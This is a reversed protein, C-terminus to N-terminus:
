FSNPDHVLWIFAEIKFPKHLLLFGLPLTMVSCIHSFTDSLLHSHFTPLMQFVSCPPSSTCCHFSSFFMISLCFHPLQSFTFSFHTFIFSSHLAPHFKSRCSGFAFACSDILVRATLSLFANEAQQKVKCWRKHKKLLVFAFTLWPPFPVPSPSIQLFSLQSWRTQYCIARLHRTSPLFTTCLTLFSLCPAAASLRFCFFLLSFLLPPSSNITNKPTCWTDRVRGTSGPGTCM